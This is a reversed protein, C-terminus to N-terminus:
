DDQHKRGPCHPLPTWGHQSPTYTLSKIRNQSSNLARRSKNFAQNMADYSEYGYNMRPVILTIPDLSLVIKRTSYGKLSDSARNKAPIVNIHSLPRHSAHSESSVRSFQTQQNHMTCKCFRWPCLLISYRLVFSRRNNPRTLRWGCISRCM